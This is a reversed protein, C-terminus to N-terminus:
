NSIFSESQQLVNIKQQYEEQTLDGNAFKLQLVQIPNTIMGAETKRKVKGFACNIKNQLDTNSIYAYIQTTTVSAHGLQQKVVMINGTEELLKMATSHRFLHPFAGKFRGGTRLNKKGFRFIGVASSVKGLMVWVYERRLHKVKTRNSPFVWEGEGIGNAKCYAKLKDCLQQSIVVEKLAAADSVRISKGEQKVRKFQKLNQLVVSSPGIHEPVLTLAESVRAGSQWLLELLIQDRDPHLSVLPVAEIISRIEEPELFGSFKTDM